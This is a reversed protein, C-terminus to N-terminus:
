ADEEDWIRVKKPRATAEQRSDEASQIAQRRIAFWVFVLGAPMTLWWQIAYAQHPGLGEDPRPLPVVPHEGAPAPPTQSGLVVYAGVDSLEPVRARADSISISALQPAPLDRGLDPEGSRLWGVVEIPGSPPPDASPTSEADRANPVWGRDVLITLGDTVFPTLVEFGVTQDKTRNRVMLDPGPRYSGQLTVRTWQQEPTLWEGSRDAGGGHALVTAIPAPDAEYNQEIATVKTRQEVHRGWQWSGLMWCAVGFLIAAVTVLLWRRTLWLRLM